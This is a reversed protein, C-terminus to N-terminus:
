PLTISTTVSGDVVVDGAQVGVSADASLSTAYQAFANAPLKVVIIAPVVWGALILSRRIPDADLRQGKTQISESCSPSDDTSM